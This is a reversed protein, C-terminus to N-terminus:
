PFDDILRYHQSIDPFSPMTNGKAKNVRAPIVRQNKWIMANKLEIPDNLDYASIPFFHDIHTDEEDPCHFSKTFDLWQILWEPSCGVLNMTNDHKAAGQSIM